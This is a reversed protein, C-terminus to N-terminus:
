LNLLELEIELRSKLDKIENIKKNEITLEKPKNKFRNFTEEDIKAVSDNSEIVTIDFYESAKEGTMWTEENVFQKIIEIDINEKLKTKYVNLIGEELQDLTDAGKRMDNANGWVGCLPKHIMLFSNSPMIIEDGAMAIVSAISAAVGDIHIIKKGKHRKLMNYIALGAFVSGGGSNIYIDIDRDGAENLVSVIDEPCKDENEWKDWETSVIEGYLRLESSTSNLNKFELTGIDKNNKNKFSLVKSM